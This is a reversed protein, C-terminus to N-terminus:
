FFNYLVVAIITNDKKFSRDKGYKTLVVAAAM